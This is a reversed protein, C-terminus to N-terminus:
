PESGQEPPTIHGFRPPEPIALATHLEHQFRTLETTQTFEDDQGRFLGQRITGLEGDAAGHATPAEGSARGRSGGSLTHSRAPNTGSSAAVTNDAGLSGGGM